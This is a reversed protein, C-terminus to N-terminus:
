FSEQYHDVLSKPIPPMAGQQSCVYAALRNAKENIEELRLEQLYGITAAATFADGAGVTDVINTTIGPHVSYADPTQLISGGDGKTLIAMDLNYRDILVSLWKKERHQIELLGALIELEEDNLKVINARELSSHLIEGSYYHQRLNVDFIKITKLHLTGLYNEITKRSVPSRQCLSGFCIADLKPQIMEAYNNAMLHDWAVEGPFRYSAIGKEDITAAVYGTVIGDKLSIARTELGRKQLEALGRSGRDDHGITSIPIGVAGLANVHYTFNVPAGGIEEVEGLVDWLLEGIGAIKYKKMRTRKKTSPPPM